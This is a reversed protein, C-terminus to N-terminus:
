QLAFFSGTENCGNVNNEWYSRRAAYGTIIQHSGDLNTGIVLGGVTDKGVKCLIKITSEEPCVYVKMDRCTGASVSAALSAANVTEDVHKTEAHETLPLTGVAVALAIIVLLILILKAQPNNRNDTGACTAM